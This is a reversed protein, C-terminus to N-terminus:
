PSDGQDKLIQEQVSLNGSAFIRTKLTHNMTNWHRLDLLGDGEALIARGFPDWTRMRSYRGHKLIGTVTDGSSGTQQSTNGFVCALPRDLPDSSEDHYESVLLPGESRASIESSGGQTADTVQRINGPGTALIKEAITTGQDQWTSSSLLSGDSTISAAILDANGAFGFLTGGALLIACLWLLLITSRISRPDTDIGPNETKHWSPSPTPGPTM